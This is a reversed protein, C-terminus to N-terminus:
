GACAASIEATYQARAAEVGTSAIVADYRVQFQDAVRGGKDLAAPDASPLGGLQGDLLTLAVATCPDDVQAPPVAPGSLVPLPSAAVPPPPDEFGCGSLVVSTGVALLLPLRRM